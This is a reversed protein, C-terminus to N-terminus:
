ADEHRRRGFLRPTAGTSPNAPRARRTQDTAPDRHLTDIGGFWDDLTRKLQRAKARNLVLTVTYTDTSLDAGGTPVYHTPIGACTDWFEDWRQQACPDNPATYHWLHQRSV